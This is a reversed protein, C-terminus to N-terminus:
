PFLSSFSIELLAIRSFVYISFSFLQYVFLYLFYIQDVNDSNKLFSIYQEKSKCIRQDQYNLILSFSALLPFM